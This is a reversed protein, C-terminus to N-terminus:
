TKAVNPKKRLRYARQKEAKTRYKSIRGTKMSLIGQTTILKIRAKRRRYAQYRENDNIYLAPRGGQKGWKKFDKHTYGYAEAISYTQNPKIQEKVM